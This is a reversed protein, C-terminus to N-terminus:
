NAPQMGLHYVPGFVTVWGLVLRARRANVQNMVVVGRRCDPSTHPKACHRRTEALQWAVELHRGVSTDRQFADSGANGRRDDRPFDVVGVKM